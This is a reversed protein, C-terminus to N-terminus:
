GSVWEESAGSVVVMRPLKGHPLTQLGDM